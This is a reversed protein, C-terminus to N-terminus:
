SVTHSLRPEYPFAHLLSFSQFQPLQSVIPVLQFLNRQNTENRNRLSINLCTNLYNRTLIHLTNTQSWFSTWHRATASVAVFRRKWYSASLKKVLQTVTLKELLVRTRLM